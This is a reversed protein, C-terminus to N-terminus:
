QLWRGSGGEKEWMNGWVSWVSWDSWDSWHGTDLTGTDLTGTSTTFNADLLVTCSFTVSAELYVPFCPSFSILVQTSGSPVQTSGSPVQTSGSHFRLSRPRCGSTEASSKRKIGVEKSCSHPPFHFINEEERIRRWEVSCCLAPAAAPAGNM